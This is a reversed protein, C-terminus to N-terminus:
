TLIAATAEAMAKRSDQWALVRGLRKAEFDEFIVPISDAAAADGLAFANATRGHFAMGLVKELAQRGLPGASWARLHETDILMEKGPLVSIRSGEAVQLIMRHIVNGQAPALQRQFGIEAAEFALIPHPDHAHVQRGGMSGHDTLVERIGPNDGIAEMDDAQDVLM